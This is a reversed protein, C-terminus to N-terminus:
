IGKAKIKPLDLTSTLDKLGWIQEKITNRGSARTGETRRTEKTRSVMKPEHSCFSTTFLYYDCSQGTYRQPSTRTRRTM